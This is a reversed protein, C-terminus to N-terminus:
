VGGLSRITRVLTRLDSRLSFDKLASLNHKMKEPLIHAAYYEDVDSVGRLLEEEGYFRLSAESTIGAPLLLTALYEPQYEEVYCEAEPRTGVLSMNGTLLLAVGAIAMCILIVSCVIRSKM